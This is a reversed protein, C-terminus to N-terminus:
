RQVITNVPRWQDEDVIDVVGVGRLGLLLEERRPTVVVNGTTVATCDVGGDDGDM